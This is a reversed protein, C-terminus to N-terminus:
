RGSAHNYTGAKSKLDLAESPRRLQAVAKM